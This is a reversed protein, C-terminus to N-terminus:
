RRRPFKKRFASVIVEAVWRPKAFHDLSIVMDFEYAAADKKGHLKRFFVRQEKDFEALRRRAEKEAINMLAALRKVRYPPSAILRVALVNERPLILHCGRGVFIVPGTEALAYAASILHRGYDSMIFSKEGALLKAFENIKGPYREDFYRITKESLDGAAAIHNLIHRDIVRCGLKKAALDAIELAGVGIKRSLCISPPLVDSQRKVMPSPRRREHWERIIRGAVQAADPRKKAYTGPIYDPHASM